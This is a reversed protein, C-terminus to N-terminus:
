TPRGNEEWIERARTRIQDETPKVLARRKLEEVFASIREITVPDGVSRALDRYRHARAILSAVTQRQDMASEMTFLVISGFNNL